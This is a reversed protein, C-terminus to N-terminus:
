HQQSVSLLMITGVLAKKEQDSTTLQYGNKLADMPVKHNQHLQDMVMHVTATTHAQPTM